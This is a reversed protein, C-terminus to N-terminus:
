AVSGNRPRDVVSGTRHVASGARKAASLAAEILDACEAPELDVRFRKTRSRAGSLLTLSSARVRLIGALSRLLEENARGDEPPAAVGVKLM